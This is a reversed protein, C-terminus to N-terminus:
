GLVVVQVAWTIIQCPNYGNYITFTPSNQLSTHFL